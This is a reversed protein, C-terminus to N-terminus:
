FTNLTLTAITTSCPTFTSFNCNWVLSMAIPLMDFDEHENGVVTYFLSRLLSEDIQTCTHDHKFL